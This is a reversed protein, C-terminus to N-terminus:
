HGWRMREAKTDKKFAKKVIKWHDQCLYTKRSRTDKVKLGTNAISEAIRTAAFSRKSDNNCGVISCTKKSFKELAAV